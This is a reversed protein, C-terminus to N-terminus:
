QTQFAIVVIRSASPSLSGAHLPRHLHGAISSHSWREMNRWEWSNGPAGKWGAPVELTLGGSFPVNLMVVKVADRSM